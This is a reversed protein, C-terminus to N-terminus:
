DRHILKIKKMMESMKMFKIVMKMLYSHTFLGITQPIYPAIARKNKQHKQPLPNRMHRKKKLFRKALTQSELFFNLLM